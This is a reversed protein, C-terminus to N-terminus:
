CSSSDSGQPEPFAMSASHINNGLILSIPSVFVKHGPAGYLGAHYRVHAPVQKRRNSHVRLEVPYLCLARKGERQASTDPVYYTIMLIKLIFYIKVIFAIRKKESIKWRIFQSHLCEGM